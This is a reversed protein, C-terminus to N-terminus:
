RLLSTFRRMHAKATCWGFTGEFTNARASYLGLSVQKMAWKIRRKLKDLTDATWGNGYVIGVLTAWFDEVPRCMPLNTPNYFKPVLPFRERQLYDLVKNAHM